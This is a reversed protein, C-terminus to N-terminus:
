RKQSERQHPNTSLHTPRSQMPFSPQSPLKAETQQAPLTKLGGGEQRKTPSPIKETTGIKRLGELSLQDGWESQLSDLTRPPHYIVYSSIRPKRPDRHVVKTEPNLMHCKHACGCFVIAKTPWKTGKCTKGELEFLKTGIPFFLEARKYAMFDKYWKRAPWDPFVLIGHAQDQKIKDAVKQLM